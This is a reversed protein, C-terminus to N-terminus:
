WIQHRPQIAIAFALPAPSSDTVKQYVFGLSFNLYDLLDEATQVVNTMRAVSKHHYVDNRADRVRQFKAMFDAMSLRRTGRVFRHSFIAWHKEVLFGIQGIDCNEAFEYGNQFTAVRNRQFSPGDISEIIRAILDAADRTLVVGGVQRVTRALQGARLAAHVGAWWRTQNYHRELAVAVTSRFATEFCHFVSFLQAQEAVKRNYVKFIAPRWDNPQYHLINGPNGACVEKLADRMLYPSVLALDGQFVNVQHATPTFPLYNVFFDTLFEYSIDPM